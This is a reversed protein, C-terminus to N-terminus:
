KSLCLKQTSVNVNNGDVAQLFYMGSPLLATPIILSRKDPNSQRIPFAEGVKNGYLDFLFLSAINKDSITITVHDNAPNPFLLLGQGEAAVPIGTWSSFSIDDVWLTSGATGCNLSASCTASFFISMSDPFMSNFAPDYTLSISAQAYTAAATKLVWNGEAITDRTTNWKTLIIYCSASDSGVPTYQYWFDATAPRGTYQFGAKLGLPSLNVVGPFAGGMPNPITTPDPNNTLTVTVAKMSSTGGHVKSPTTEKFVSQPNGLLMFSNASIWGSPDNGTWTEFNFTPSQAFLGLSSGGFLLFSLLKKLYTNKVPQKILRTAM